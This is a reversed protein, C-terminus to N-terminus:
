KVKEGAGSMVPQRASWAFLELMVREATRIDKKAEDQSVWLRIWDEGLRNGVSGISFTRAAKKSELHAIYDGHEEVLERVPARLEESIMGRKRVAELVERLQVKRFGGSLDLPWAYGFTQEDVRVACLATFCAAELAARSAVVSAGHASAYYAIRADNLLSLPGGYLILAPRSADPISALFATWDAQAAMFPNPVTEEVM